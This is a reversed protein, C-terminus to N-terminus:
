ELTLLGAAHHGIEAPMPGYSSRVEQIADAHLNSIISGGSESHNRKM